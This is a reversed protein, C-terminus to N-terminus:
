VYIDSRLQHQSFQSKVTGAQKKHKAWRETTQPILKSNVDERISSHIQELSIIKFQSSLVTVFITETSHKCIMM